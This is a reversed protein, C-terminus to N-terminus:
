GEDGHQGRLRNRGPVYQSGDLSGLLTLDHDARLVTGHLDAQIQGLWRARGGGFRHLMAGDARPASCRQHHQCGLHQTQKFRNDLRLHNRHGLHMVPASNRIPTM